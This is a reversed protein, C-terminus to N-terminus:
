FDFPRKPGRDIERRELIAEFEARFNQRAHHHKQNEIYRCVRELHSHSYSFVAYGSQWQFKGLCYGNHQIFRTSTKKVERVLESINEVPKMGIFLHLHDPMGNIALVKHGRNQIVTTIYKHLSVEWEPQILAQLHKVAFVIQIYLQSFVDAM